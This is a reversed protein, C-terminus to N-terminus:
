GLQRWAFGAAQDAVGVWGEECNVAAALVRAALEPLNNHESLHAAVLHQLRSADISALLDAAAQNELHGYRGAIRRKLAPPYASEALMRADHNCELVLGHCGSLMARLHATAEGADTLVGLRLAGDSFVYQVPERADHPVPYPLVELDNVALPDHSDIVRCDAGDAAAGAAMLTGYTLWVPLGYRRALRFVGGIHDSHEHTVLLGTLDGPTVGLRNLRAATERLSFGCDVLLRTAGSEVLLANGSSGSGLSAFRIM